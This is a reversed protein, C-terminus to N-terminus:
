FIRVGFGGLTPGLSLESLGWFIECLGVYTITPRVPDDAGCEIRM